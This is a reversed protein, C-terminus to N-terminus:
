EGRGFTGLQRRQQLLPAPCHIGDVSTVNQCAAAFVTQHAAMRPVATATGAKLDVLTVPLKIALRRLRHDPPRM